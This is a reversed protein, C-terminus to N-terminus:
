VKDNLTEAGTAQGAFAAAGPQCGRLLQAQVDPPLKAWTAADMQSLSVAQLGGALGPAPSSTGDPKSAAAAAFEAPDAAEFATEDLSAGSVLGGDDWDMSDGDGAEADDIEEEGLSAGGLPLAQPEPPPAAQAGTSIGSSAHGATTMLPQGNM